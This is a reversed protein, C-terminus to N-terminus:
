EFRRNTLHNHTKQHTSHRISISWEGNPRGVHRSFADGVDCVKSRQIGQHTSVGSILVCIHLFRRSADSRHLWQNSQQLVGWFESIEWTRTPGSELTPAQVNRSCWPDSWKGIHAHQWEKDGVGHKAALHVPRIIKCHTQMIETWKDGVRHRKSPAKSLDNQLQLAGEMQVHHRKTSTKAAHNQLIHAKMKRANIVWITSKTPHRPQTM